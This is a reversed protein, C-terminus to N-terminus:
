QRYSKVQIIRERGKGARDPFPQNSAKLHITPVCKPTLPVNELLWLCGSLASILCSHASPPYRSRLSSDIFTHSAWFVSSISVIFPGWQLFARLRKMSSWQYISSSYSRLGPRLYLSSHIVTINREKTLLKSNQWIIDGMWSITENDTVCYCATFHRSYSALTWEKWNQCDRLTM